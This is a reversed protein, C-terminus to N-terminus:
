SARKRGIAMGVGLMAAALAAGVAVAITITMTDQSGRAVTTVSHEIQGPYTTADALRGSAAWASWGAAYVAGDLKLGGRVLTLYAFGDQPGDGYVVVPGQDPTSM